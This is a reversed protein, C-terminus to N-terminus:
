SSSVGRVYSSVRGEREDYIGQWMLLIPSTDHYNISMFDKTFSGSLIAPFLIKLTGICQKPSSNKPFRLQESTSSYINIGDM